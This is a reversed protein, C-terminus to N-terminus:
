DREAASARGRRLRPVRVPKGVALYVLLALWGYTVVAPVLTWEPTAHQVAALYGGHLVASPGLIRLRSAIYEAWTRVGGRLEDDDRCAQLAALATWCGSLAVYTGFLMLYEVPLAWGNLAAQATWLAHAAGYGIGMSLGWGLAARGDPQRAERLVGLVPAAKVVEHILALLCIDLFLDTGWDNGPHSVARLMRRVVDLPWGVGQAALSPSQLWDPATASLSAVWATAFWLSTALVVGAAALVLNGITQGGSPGMVLCALLGLGAWAALAFWWPQGSEVPLLAGPARGDPFHRALLAAQFWTAEDVTQRAEPFAELAAQVRVDHRPVPWRLAALPALLVLGLLAFAWWRFALPQKAEPKEDPEDSGLPVLPATLAAPKTRAARRPPEVIRADPPNALPELRLPPRETVPSLSAPEAPEAAQESAAASPAGSPDMRFPATTFARFQFGSGSGPEPPRAVDAATTPGPQSKAASGAPPPSSPESPWPQGCRPCAAEGSAARVPEVQQGCAPCAERRTM